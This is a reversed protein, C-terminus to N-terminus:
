TRRVFGFAVTAFALILVASAAIAIGQGIGSGVHNQLLVGLPFGYAGAILAGTLLSRTREGFSLRNWLAALVMLVMALGIWHSHADVERTYVYKARAYDALSAHSATTERLAAHQFAEALSGGIHDLTQHEIWVAYYFGYAMAWVALALGALALIQQSRRM